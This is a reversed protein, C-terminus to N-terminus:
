MGGSTVGLVLGLEAGRLASSAGGVTNLELESLWAAARVGTFWSANGSRAFAVDGSLEARPVGAWGSRGRTTATEGGSAYVLSAGAWVGIHVWRRPLWQLGAVIPVHLFSVRTGAADRAGASWLATLALGGRLTPVVMYLARVEAGPTLMAPAAATSLRLAASYSWPSPPLRPTSPLSAVPAAPQAPTPVPMPMPVSPSWDGVRARVSEVLHSMAARRLAATSSELSWSETCAQSDCLYVRLSETLSVVHTEHERQPSCPGAVVRTEAGARELEARLLALDASPWETCLAIM